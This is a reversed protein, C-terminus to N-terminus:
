PRPKFRPVKAPNPNTPTPPQDKWSHTHWILLPLVILKRCKAAVFVAFQYVYGVFGQVLWTVLMLANGIVFAFFLGIVILGIRGSGVSEQTRQALNFARESNALLVSLELFIGPM